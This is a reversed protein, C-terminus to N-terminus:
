RPPLKFEFDNPGDAVKVEGPQIQDSCPIPQFVPRSKFDAEVKQIEEPSMAAREEPLITPRRTPPMEFAVRHPGMVAGPAPKMGITTLTFKGDEGVTGRADRGPNGAKRGTVSPDDVPYFVVTGGAAPKGECTTVTGSVPVLRYPDGRCGTLLLACVVAGIVHYSVPM